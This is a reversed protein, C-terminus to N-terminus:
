GVRSAEPRLYLFSFFFSFFLFLSFFFFLSFLFFFFSFLYLVGSFGLGTAVGYAAEERKFFVDVRKRVDGSETQNHVFSVWDSVGM